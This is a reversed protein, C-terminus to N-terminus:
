TYAPELRRIVEICARSNHYPCKWFGAKDEGEMIAGDATRGWFWEGKQGDIIYKKTYTWAAQFIRHFHMEGTLQWANLFGVIAEAQVWWHREAILRNDERSFEYSLSGDPNLGGTSAIAIKVALDKTERILAQDGLAEAAELLLWSAEIDHGYSIFDSRLAWDEDFFLHLHHTRLDIIHDTFVDILHRIKQALHDDPWVRYLNTYAELIHLHTNMTKKENADKDSLRLDAIPQWDRTFAEMYGGRIRDYSHDEIDRYLKKALELVDDDAKAQHFEALAYIVFAIAYIQKKTDAPEGSATVSWYVGGLQQDVFHQRIYALSREALQLYGPDEELLYAASFSWLIRANLVAGKVAGEVVHNDNTLRGYFGGHANDITFQRWYDLIHRLEDRFEAQLAANNEM